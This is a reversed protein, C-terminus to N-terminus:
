RYQMEGKVAQLYCENSRREWGVWEGTADKWAFPPYPESAIGFRVDAEADVAFSLLAFIAVISLRSRGGM